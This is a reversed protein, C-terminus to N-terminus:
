RELKPLRQEPPLDAFIWEGTGGTEIEEDAALDYVAIQNYHRGLALAAERDPLVAVVDIFTINEDEQYWTGICLRPDSLLSRNAEIFARLLDAPAPRGSITLASQPEPYLSVAFFEQGSMDGFYLSFTAGAHGEHLRELRTAAEEVPIPKPLRTRRNSLYTRLDKAM